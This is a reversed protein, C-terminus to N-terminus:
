RRCRGASGATDPVLVIAAVTMPEEQASHLPAEFVRGFDPRQTEPSLGRTHSLRKAWSQSVESWWARQIRIMGALYPRNIRGRRDTCVDAIDRDDGVDVMALVVSTSAISLCAPAKRALWTTTSRTM